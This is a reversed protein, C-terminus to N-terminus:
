DLFNTVQRPKIEQQGFMARFINPPLHERLVAEVEPNNINQNGFKGAKIANWVTEKSM